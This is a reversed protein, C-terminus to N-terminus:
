FTFYPNFDLIRLLIKLKLSDIVWQSNDEWDNCKITTFGENLYKM